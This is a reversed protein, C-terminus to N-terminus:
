KVFVTKRNIFEMMGDKSLERGYGSMLQGGFPLRPDSKVLENVFFAGDAVRDIYKMAEEVNTTCVSIGLAFETKQSLEFAHETNKAKIMAALPGFTEEDFAPMGPKVSGVVTPEFYAGKRKGGLLLEAGEDISKKVQKELDEALDVRALTGIDTTEDLPDGSKLEIVAKVFRDVFEDYVKSDIIFRKAAICSQGTNMMRATVATDVAKELDADALVVFANSGGLELLSRKTYRGAIEAVSSGAPGSGTLTVAKVAPHSIVMEIKTHDVNISQFVGKPFGAKEFVEEIMGACGLVNRAHKLIGVNGATLTPAAYRFVQWFPYNWPMVAFVCGIPNHRVFSKSADTKIVQDALFEEANEAYYDCVWACKEIEAKSEKIPKGMELTMMRAYVDVNKRLIDGANAMLKARKALPVDRWEAFAKESNQLIQSVEKKTHENHTGVVNGNYPNISKYKM